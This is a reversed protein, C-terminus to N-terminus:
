RIGKGEVITIRQNSAIDRFQQIEGSPWAVTLKDASAAQGLGFHVWYTSQSQYSGFPNVERLMKRGASELTLRAGIGHRNSRTGALQVLLWHGSNGGDNRLLNPPADENSVAIDMDGDQDIDAVAVGRSSEVIALGPGARRTVNEFTGDGRNRYLLNLQKYSTNLSPAQDVQPYIHGDAVFLDLLGDNDFDLFKTGWALFLYSDSFGAQFTADSFRLGGENRYLTNWDHSFNTVFLDMDGDGDYDGADTGMGAQEKADENTAVGAAAAVEKFHGKGDNHWLFNSTSDNAVYIDPAGDNDLDTIVVGLGYRLERDQIGSAATADTFTGDGNNRYLVDAAGKLGIPGPFVSLGKWISRAGGNPPDALDFDVYRAIYLDLDGDRDLDAFAASTNWAAPADLGARRTIDRFRGKGDNEFLMNKGFATLFLDFDGDNDTDVFYAGTIWGHVDVGAERAVDTFTGDGNNRYLACANPNRHTIYDDNTQANAFFIDEDGDGDFDAIAIGTGTSEPIHRKEKTGCVTVLTLGAQPAVDTFQVNMPPGEPLGAGLTTLGGSSRPGSAQSMGAEKAMMEEAAAGGGNRHGQGCSLLPASAALAPLGLLMKLAIRFTVPARRDYPPTHPADLEIVPEIVRVGACSSRRM